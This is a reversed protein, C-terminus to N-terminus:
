GICGWDRFPPQPATLRAVEARLREIEDAAEKCLSRHDPCVSPLHHPGTHWARRLRAPLDTTKDESM